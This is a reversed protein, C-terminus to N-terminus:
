IPEIKTLIERSPKRHIFLREFTRNTNTVLRVKGHQVPSGLFAFHTQWWRYFLKPLHITIASDFLYRPYMVNANWIKPQLVLPAEVPNQMMINFKKERCTPQHLSTKYLRYYVQEDLQPSVSMADNIHFFRKLQKFIFNPSYNNLLLSMDTQIRESNFDNANSCIRAARLLAAYPINRHIYRPHNSTYPLIYPETIPRHYISTRLQGNENMITVDLFHVTTSITPEIKINIDKNKAQQLQVVIEESTQNASM